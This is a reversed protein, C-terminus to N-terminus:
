SATLCGSTQPACISELLALVEDFDIPKSVFWVDRLRVKPDASASLLVIPLRRSPYRRRIEAAVRDGNMGPLMVDCLMVDLTEPDALRVASLGDGARAVEYGEGEFLAELVDAFAKEDDVILV